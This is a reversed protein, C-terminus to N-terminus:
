RSWWGAMTSWCWTASRCTRRSARTVSRFKGPAPRSIPRPEVLWVTEGTTAEATGGKFRGCRIKPGCLDQLIAVPKNCTEAAARVTSLRRAHEEHSGHSFNLRAVDMGARVLQELTVQDDSAPGITCVIKARRILM